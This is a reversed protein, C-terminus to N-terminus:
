LSSSKGNGIVFAPERLAAAQFKGDIVMMRFDYGVLYKEAVVYSDIKRALDYAHKLEDPTTINTTVGRGHNGRLPKTVVPYGIEEALEAAEDLSEVAKGQPVPIGNEGLIEKKREKNGAIEVGLSSTSDVVTAQIKRQYKGQGLQVYSDENLRIHSIGRRAAEDVISKTSPGLLTSEYISQLEKLLPEIDTMENEFLKEVIEVAMEGARIGVEENQYRYVINYVGKEDLSFTKGFSVKHGILCQLEIAIHEVIHGAWTGRDVREFFGGPKGPSCNHEYLTPLITELNKRFDPVLDSPREELEGIDLEMLIVPSNSYYNPGRLARLENIKM